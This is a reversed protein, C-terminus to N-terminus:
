ETPIWIAVSIQPMENKGMSLFYEPINQIRSVKYPDYKSERMVCKM